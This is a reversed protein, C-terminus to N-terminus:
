PHVENPLNSLVFQYISIADEYAEEFTEKAPQLEDGPYRYTTAFPTLRHASAQYSLFDKNLEGVTLILARIDHTKDVRIDHFVLFGKLAKEAAQQCHYVAYDLLPKKGTSLRQAAYLDHLAKILWNKVLETKAKNM